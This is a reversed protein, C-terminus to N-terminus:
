NLQVTLNDIKGTFRFPVDYRYDVLALPTRTDLGVDFTEDEPFTIPLTSCPGRMAQSAAVDDGARIAAVVADYEPFFRSMRNRVVLHM